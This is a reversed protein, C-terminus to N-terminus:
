NEQVIVKYQYVQTKGGDDRARIILNTEGASGKATLNVVDSNQEASVLDENGVVISSVRGGEPMEIQTAMGVTVVVDPNAASAQIVRPQATGCAALALFAFAALIPKQIM